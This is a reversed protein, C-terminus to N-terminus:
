VPVHVHILTVRSPLVLSFFMGVVLVVISSLIKHTNRHIRLWTTKTKFIITTLVLGLAVFENMSFSCWFLSLLYLLTFQNILLRKTMGIVATYRGNM